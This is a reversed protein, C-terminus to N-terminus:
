KKTITKKKNKHNTKKSKSEKKTENEKKSDLTTKSIKSNKRLINIKEQYNDSSTIFSGSVLMDVLSGVSSVTTDNIGGDISVLVKSKKAKLLKELDKLKNVADPIFSQGPVVSMVLVMDIDNVYSEIEQISTDPNIALGCKIGYSHILSIYKSIDKTAEVHFTIYECNLLAFKKIYKDLKDTMLHVDLRKSSFKTVKKIKRYAIKTGSVFKGDIFDVHIYDVDTVSLEYVTKKLDSSSLFSASIKM